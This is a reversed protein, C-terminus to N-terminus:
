DGKVRLLYATHLPEFIPTAATMPEFRPMTGLALRNETWLRVAPYRQLSVPGLEPTM